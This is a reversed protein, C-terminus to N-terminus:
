GWNPSLFEYYARDTHCIDRDREPSSLLRAFVAEVRRPTTLGASAEAQIRPKSQESNKKDLPSKGSNTLSRSRKINAKYDYGLYIIQSVNLFLILLVFTISLKETIDVWCQRIAGTVSRNKWTQHAPVTPGSSRQWTLSTRRVSLMLSSSRRAM